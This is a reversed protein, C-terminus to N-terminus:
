RTSSITGEADKRNIIRWTGFSILATLERRIAEKWQTGYVPDNIAKNYSRPIKIGSKTVAAKRVIEFKHDESWLESAIALLAKLRQAPRDDIEGGEAYRKLGRKAERKAKNDQSNTQKEHEKGSDHTPPGEGENM